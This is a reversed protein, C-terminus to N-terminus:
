EDYDLVEIRTSLEVFLSRGGYHLIFGGCDPRDEVHGVRRFAAPQIPNMRDDYVRAYMGRKLDYAEITKSKYYKM